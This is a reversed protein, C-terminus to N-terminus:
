EWDFKLGGGDSEEEDNLARWLARSIPQSSREAREGGNKAHTQGIRHSNFLQATLDTGPERRKEKETQPMEPYVVLDGQYAAFYQNLLHFERVAHFLYVTADALDPSHGQLKTKITEKPEIHFRIADSAYRKEPTVLELKLDEMNPLAWAQDRWQDNPNLRRGLTAYGETRLNAYTRSNVQSTGNPQFEIVWVGMERLPDGVGAGYGGGYDICVPNMGRRLDIGYLEEAIRLVERAHYM